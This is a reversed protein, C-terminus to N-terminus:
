AQTGRGIFVALALGDRDEDTALLLEDADKLLSRLKSVQKRKDSHVVYLAEFNDDVNVGLRAWPEGRYRAPIEAARDPMDRIHGVSSEVVYGRGLYGAITRAKSPSEVIVLKTGHGHGGAARAKSGGASPAKSASGARTKATVTRAPVSKGNECRRHGNGM